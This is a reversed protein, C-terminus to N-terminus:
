PIRVAFDLPLEWCGMPCQTSEVRLAGRFLTGSEFPHSADTRVRFTATIVQMPSGALIEAAFRSAHFLGDFPSGVDFNTYNRPYGAYIVPAGLAAALEALNRREPSGENLRGAVLVTLAGAADQEARLQQLRARQELESLGSDDGGGLVAVLARRHTAPAHAALLGYGAGLADIVPARVGALPVARNYTLVDIASNQLDTGGPFVAASLPPSWLPLPLILPPWDVSFGSGAFGAVTTVDAPREATGDRADGVFHKGAFSQLDGPDFEGLRLGRELLLMAAYASPNPVLGSQGAAEYAFDTVSVRGAVDYGCKPVDNAQELWVYCNELALAPTASSPISSDFGPPRLPASLMGVLRVHLELETRDASVGTPAITPPLLAVTVPAVPRIVIDLRRPLTGTASLAIGREMAHGLAHSVSVLVVAPLGDLLVRGGSGTTTTALIASQSADFVVVRTGELGRGMPDTVRLDLTHKYSDLAAPIGLTPDGPAPGGSRASGQDSSGGGCAPLLVCCVLILRRASSLLSDGPDAAM